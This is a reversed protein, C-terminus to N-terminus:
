NHDGNNLKCLLIYTVAASSIAEYMWVTWSIKFKSIQLSEEELLAHLKMKFFKSWAVKLQCIHLNLIIIIIINEKLKLGYM